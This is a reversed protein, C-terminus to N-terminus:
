CCLSRSTGLKHLARHSHPAVQPFFSSLKLPYQPSLIICLTMFKGPEVAWRLTKIDYWLSNASRGQNVIAYKKRRFGARVNNSAPSMADVPRDRADFEIVSHYAHVCRKALHHPPDTRDLGCGWEFHSWLTNRFSFVYEIISDAHNRSKPGSVVPAAM